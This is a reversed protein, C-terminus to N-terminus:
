TIAIHRSALDPEHNNQIIVTVEDAIQQTFRREHEGTPRRDSAISIM